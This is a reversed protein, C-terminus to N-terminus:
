RTARLRDIVPGLTDLRQDTPGPRDALVTPDSVLTSVGLRM